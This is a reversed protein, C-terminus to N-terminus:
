DFWDNENASEKKEKDVKMVQLNSDQEYDLNNKLAIEAKQLEKALYMAHEKTQEFDGILGLRSITKYIEEASHGTIKKTLRNEQFHEVIIRNSNGDISIVFFGKPDALWDTSAQAEMTEVEEIKIAQGTFPGPNQGLCREVIQMIKQSDQEPM